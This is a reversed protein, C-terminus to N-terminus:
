CRRAGRSVIKPRVRFFIEPEWRTWGTVQQRWKPPNGVKKLGAPGAPGNLRVGVDVKPGGLYGFLVGDSRSIHVAYFKLNM